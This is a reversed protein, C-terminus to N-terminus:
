RIAFPNQLIKQHPCRSWSETYQTLVWDNKKTEISGMLGISWGFDQECFNAVLHKKNLCYKKYAARIEFEGDRRKNEKKRMRESISKRSEEGEKKREEGEKQREEEKENEEGEQERRREKDKRGKIRKREDQKEWRSPRVKATSVGSFYISLFTQSSLFFPHRPPRCEFGGGDKQFRPAHTRGVHFSAKM